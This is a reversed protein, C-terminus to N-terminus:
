ATGGEELQQQAKFLVTVQEYLYAMQWRLQQMAQIVPWPVSWFCSPCLGMPSQMGRWAESSTLVPRYCCICPSVQDLTM